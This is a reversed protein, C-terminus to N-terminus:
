GLPTSGITRLNLVVDRYRDSSPDGNLWKEPLSECAIEWYRNYKVEIEDGSTQAIVTVSRRDAAITYNATLALTTGDTTNKVYIVDNSDLLARHSLEITADLDENVEVEVFYTTLSLASTSYRNTRSRLLLKVYQTGSDVFQQAIISDATSFEIDQKTSNTTRGIEVWASDVDNWAYLICGDLNYVSSDDSAAVVKIRLREVDGQGIGTDLEFRHYLYYGATPNTTQKYNADDADIAQYNATSYESTNFDTEGSPLSASSDSYAKQTTSPNTIGVYNVTAATYILQSETIPPVDGDDLYLLAGQRFLEYLSLYAEKSLYGWKLRMEFHLGYQNVINDGSLATQHHGVISPTRSYEDPDITIGSENLAINDILLPGSDYTGTKQVFEIRM